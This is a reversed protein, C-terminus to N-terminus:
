RSNRSKRYPTVPLEPQADGHAGEWLRRDREERNAAGPLEPQAHGHPGQRQGAGSRPLTSGANSGGATEPDGKHRGHILKHTLSRAWSNFPRRVLTFVQSTEPRLGTLKAHFYGEPDAFLATLNHRCSRADLPASVKPCRSAVSICFRTEGCSRPCIMGNPLAGGEGERFSSDVRTMARM